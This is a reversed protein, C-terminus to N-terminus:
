RNNLLEGCLLLFNKVIGTSDLSLFVRHRLIGQGAFEDGRGFFLEVAGAHKALHELDRGGSEQLHHPSAVNLEGLRNVSHAVDPAVVNLEHEIASLDGGVFGATRCPTVLM